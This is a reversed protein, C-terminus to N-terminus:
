KSLTSSESAAKLKESFYDIIDPTGILCKGEPTYLFPVGISNTSIGCRQAVQSLEFANTRNDYVEKKIVKVKEELKNEKMWEEVDACHPCTNGYYYFFDGDNKTEDPAKTEITDQSNEIRSNRKGQSGWVIAALMGATLLIVFLTAVVTQKM